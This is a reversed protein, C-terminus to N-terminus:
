PEEDGQGGRPGNADGPVLGGPVGRGRGGVQEKGATRDSGGDAESRPKTHFALQAAGLGELVVREVADAAKDTLLRVDTMQSTPFGHLVYTAADDNGPPRGIGLRVRVYDRTGLAQSIDRLGNHGGEGGGRKLRVEFPALDLDDHVVVLRDAQLGFYDMLERVPGGSRNMFAQPKALVARPGPVGAPLLGIRAAAAKSRGRSAFHAGTREALVDLTMFGLNHRSSTYAPGPNGLGVVLYVDSV